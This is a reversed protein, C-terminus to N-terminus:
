SKRRLLHFLTAVETQYVLEGSKEHLEFTRERNKALWAYMRVAARVFEPKTMEVEQSLADFAEFSAFVQDIEKIIQEENM